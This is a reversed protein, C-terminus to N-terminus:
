VTSVGRANQVEIQCAYHLLVNESAHLIKIMTGTKLFNSGKQIKLDAGAALYAQTKQLRSFFQMIYTLWNLFIAHKGNRLYNRGGDQTNYLPLRSRMKGYTLRNLMQQCIKMLRFTGESQARRRVPSVYEANVSRVDVRTSARSKCQLCQYNQLADVRATQILRLDTVKYLVASKKSSPQQWRRNQFRARNFCIGSASRVYEWHDHILFRWTTCVAEPGRLM